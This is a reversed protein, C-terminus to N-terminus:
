PLAIEERTELLEEIKYIIGYCQKIGPSELKMECFIRYDTRGDFNPLKIEVSRSCSLFFLFILYRM